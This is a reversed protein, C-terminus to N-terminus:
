SAAELKGSLLQSGPEGAAGTDGKPGAAGTDGKPGAAGTDGKPGAAGTDGKPGAAGTVGKISGAYVWKAASAAGATTCKYVAGTSTNLYMDNVRAATVGSNSFVTATTSTGTIGTGSYWQSNDALNCEVKKLNKLCILYAGPVFFNSTNEMLNNSVLPKQTIMHDQLMFCAPVGGVL